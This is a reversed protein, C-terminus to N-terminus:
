SEDGAPATRWAGLPLATEDGDALRSLRSLSITRWGLGGAQVVAEIVLDRGTRQPPTTDPM